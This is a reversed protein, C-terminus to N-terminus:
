VFFFNVGSMDITEYGFSRSERPGANEIRLSLIPTLIGNM